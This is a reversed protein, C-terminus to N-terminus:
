DDRACDLSGVEIGVESDSEEELEVKEIKEFRSTIKKSSIHVKGVDEHAKEIHKALASMRTKFRDFDKSLGVLHEQIIHVQKRTAADKIVARATTLVAMLTTPSTLWVRNQQAYEVLDRYHAHIEAFVAEAPLFLMASDATEGPIIYKSAIDQIHKKIMQRFMQEAPKRQVADLTPDIVKEYSELPFKADIVINGTPSPLFLICDARMKNSLTYQLEFHNEPMMNRILASLQVEGFAGRSRKDALIMQLSVVNNSLDTIKQQAQDIMALRKVVDNFTANTKEFGDSLRKDVQGSIEKLQEKTTKNLEDVRKGVQDSYQKLAEGVQKRVEGMGGQLSEQLHKLTKFQHEDFKAHQKQQDQRFNNVMEEVYKDRSDASKDREELRIKLDSFHRSLSKLNLTLFGCIVM